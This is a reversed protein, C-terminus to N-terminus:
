TQVRCIRLYGHDCTGSEPGRLVTRRNSGAHFPGCEEAFSAWGPGRTRISGANSASAPGNTDATCPQQEKKLMAHGYLYGPALCPAGTRGEQAAVGRGKRFARELEPLLVAITAPHSLQKFDRACHILFGSPNLINNRFHPRVNAVFDALSVGRLELTDSITRLTNATLAQGKSRALAILEAEPSSDDITNLM